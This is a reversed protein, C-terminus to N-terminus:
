GTGRAASSACTAGPSPCPTHTFASRRQGRELRLDCGKLLVRGAFALIANQVDVAYDKGDASELIARAQESMHERFKDVAARGLADLADSPPAGGYPAICTALLEALRRPAALMYAPKAAGGLQQELLEASM